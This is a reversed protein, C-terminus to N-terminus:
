GSTSSASVFELDAVDEYALWFEATSENLDPSLPKCIFGDRDVSMVLVAESHVNYTVRVIKGINSELVRQLHQRDM